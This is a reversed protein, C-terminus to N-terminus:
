LRSAALPQSLQVPHPEGFFFHDLMPLLTLLADSRMPLSAFKAFELAAAPGGKKKPETVLDHQDVLSRSASSVPLSGSKLGPLEQVPRPPDSGLAIELQLDAGTLAGPLRVRM